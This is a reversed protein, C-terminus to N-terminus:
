SANAAVTAPLLQDDGWFLRDGVVVTPVGFVGHAMAQDHAARVEDKIAQQQVAHALQIQDLRARQAAAQIVDLEALNAGESFALRMTALAFTILASHHRAFMMARAVLIDSVPWPDPWCIAGLGHEHARRECDAIKESRRDDVGWSRRGNAEFLGGAFVPRWEADPILQGIREAAFWSYPSMAGFFFLTSSL